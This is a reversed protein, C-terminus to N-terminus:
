MNLPVLSKLKGIVFLPIKHTGTANSCVAVTVGKDFCDFSNLEEEMTFVKNDNMDEVVITVSLVSVSETFVNRKRKDNM